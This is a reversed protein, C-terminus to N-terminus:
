KKDKLEKVLNRFAIGRAAYNKFMDMSACAPSLLVTDGEKALTTAKNFAIDFDMGAKEVVTLNNFITVIKEECTGFAVIARLKPALCTLATLDVGKDLGGLMLVIKEKCSNVAAIVAAPNTGKSDNIYTINNVTDVYEIRHEGLNFSKIAQAFNKSLITEENIIFSVLECAICLNEQNHPASLKTELLNIIPNNFYMLTDDLVYFKGKVEQMSLGTIQRDKAVNNFIRRKIQCYEEFKGQYRDEHDSELNTIASALPAFKDVLELHANSVEMVIVDPNIKNEIIDMATDSVPIGINGSTVANIGLNNLLHCTLETTTTKGNTGTIALIPKKLYQSGFEVEGIFKIGSNKAQKYLNSKLPNPGPSAVILDCQPLTTTDDDTIIQCDFSLHKGLRAVAKGSAGNGLIVLKKKM